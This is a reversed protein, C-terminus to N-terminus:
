WQVEIRQSRPDRDAGAWDKLATFEEPQLYFVLRGSVQPNQELRANALFNTAAVLSPFEYMMFVRQIGAPDAFSIAAISRGAIAGNTAVRARFTAALANAIGPNNCTLDAQVRPVLNTTQGSACLVFWFLAIAYRM